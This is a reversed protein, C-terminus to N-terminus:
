LMSTAFACSLGFFLVFVRLAFGGLLSCAEAVPTPVFRRSAAFRTGSLVFAAFLSAVTVCLAALAIAEVPTEPSHWAASPATAVSHAVFMALLTGEIALSATLTRLLAEPLRAARARSRDKVHAIVALLAVGCDVSSALFLLPVLPTSWANTGNGDNLLLGTYLMLLVSFVIGLIGLVNLARAMWRRAFRGSGVRAWLVLAILAFTGFVIGCSVLIWAGRAMWSTSVNQFSEVLNIARWPMGVEFLLCATGAALSLVSLAAGARVTRVFQNGYALQLLASSAFLGGSLGGFFLYAAIPLGWLM